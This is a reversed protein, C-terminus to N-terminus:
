GSLLRDAFAGAEFPRLDNAGEGVGVFRIPVGLEERVALVVGGKASGDTKTLVVGTVEVADTFARAQAIGNQGTQADLVLLTEDVTGGAKEIVRKVKGLEDMLPTKTHLRGATDVILADAGRGIASRVADFAV